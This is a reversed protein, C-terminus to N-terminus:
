QKKVLKRSLAYLKTGFPLYIFDHSELLKYRLTFVLFVMGGLLSSILAQFASGTRSTLPLFAEWLVPIVTMFLLALALKLLISRNVFPVPLNQKLAYYSIILVVLLGIITSISSGLTALSPVLWANAVIKAVLGAIVAVAPVAIKGFGQLISSMMIILSSLFVAPMFMQLVFTGDSTEFLMQNLPRMIAILGVTEAGSLILTIKMALLVSRELQRQEGRVRAATVMPVLALALGSSLVLGLQLIPQGRDYVGKLSKAILDPIGGEAMLRYVQFSDALQFLILMASVTCIALSQRLFERGIGRKETRNPSVAWIKLSGKSLRKKYFTQLLFIAALGGFVAGSMAYSGAEVLSRGSHIAIWAGLLIVGVRIVQEVTQSVATPTMDDQGQFYGRFFALRPTLLFVFSVVRIPDSLEVDGMLVAFFDAGFFLIVFITIGLVKLTRNVSQLIIQQARLDGEKEAMMKSIVVPFGGLALTMAIGYIPYVQQFIYFGVDGVMNQFPVRYVASLIKSILSAITLLLAGRMLNKISRESM